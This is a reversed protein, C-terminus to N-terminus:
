SANKKVAKFTSPFEIGNEEEIQKARINMMREMMLGIKDETLNSLISPIEM